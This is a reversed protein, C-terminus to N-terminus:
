SGAGPGVIEVPVGDRAQQHGATVVVADPDLGGTVEVRGPRRQGLTVITRIARGDVVRYVLWDRGSAFVASEPVLIANERREVVIQVRAFLGPLLVHDPNAIRARLSIARGNEDIVPDIAYITGEFSRGPVADVSVRIAQGTSLSSLALEPVQFSVKIPDIEVLDVIRDGPTVYAGVSVARLGVVGSFPAVVTTKDLRAQALAVNAQAALHGAIAEDRARLTGTGQKALTMARTRNAEALNIEARAKALEARLITDDLEVLVDGAAVEDGESFRIENIRGAVESSVAIAENPQLSGVAHIDEIVTDVTVREAEVAVARVAPAVAAEANAGSLVGDESLFHYGGGGLALAAIGLALWLAPARSM